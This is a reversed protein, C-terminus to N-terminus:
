SSGTMTNMEKMSNWELLRKKSIILRWCTRLLANMSYFAEYPLSILVFAAQSFQRVALQRSAKLHQWFFKRRSKFLYVVSIILSPILIIGIVVLTWFWASGLITWGSLLLTLALPFLAEGSTIWFKGGRYCPCLIKEPDSGNVKPLFPLLWPILQWDGRIWRSRREVDTKYSSPYEEFLLVDSLL